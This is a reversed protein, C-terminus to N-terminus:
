RKRTGIPGRSIEFETAAAIRATSLLRVLLGVLSRSVPSTQSGGSPGLASEIRAAYWRMDAVDRRLLTVLLSDDARADLAWGCSAIRVLSPRLQNHLFDRLADPNASSRGDCLADVIGELSPIWSSLGSGEMWVRPSSV